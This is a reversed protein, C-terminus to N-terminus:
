PRRPEGMLGGRRNQDCQCNRRLAELLRTRARHLRIRVAGKPVSLRRAVEEDSLGEFESLVYVEHHSPALESM